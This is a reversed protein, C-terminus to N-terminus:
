GPLASFGIVHEHAFLIVLYLVLAAVIRVYGIERLSPRGKGRLAAVFPIASSGAFKEAWREPEERRIRADALPQDILAFLALAGFLMLSAADGNTPIHAAAWLFLAWLLPHRTVKQMGPASMGALLILVLPMVALPILQTWGPAEWLQTYPADMHAFVIWVTGGIAILSFVARYAQKGLAGRLTKRLGPVGPMLHIGIFVVLAIALSWLSGTM